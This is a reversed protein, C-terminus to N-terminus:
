WHIVPTSGKSASVGYATIYLCTFAGSARPGSSGKGSRERSTSARARALAESSRQGLAPLNMSSSAPARPTCSTGPWTSAAPRSGDDTAAAIEARFSERTGAAGVSYMPWVGAPVGGTPMRVGRGPRSVGRCPMAVGREPAFSGTCGVM